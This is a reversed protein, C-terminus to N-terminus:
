IYMAEIVTIKEFMIDGNGTKLFKTLTQICLIATEHMKYKM